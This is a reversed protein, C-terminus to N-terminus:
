RLARRPATQLLMREYADIAKERDFHTRAREVGAAGLRTREAPDRALRLMAAALAAADGAPVLIGTEEPVVAEVPGPVTTSIIPTGAAMAEVITNPFGERHTPLVLVDLARHVAPTDTRYGLWAVRPADALTERLVNAHSGEGAIALHARPEAAAVEHWAHALEVIGKERHLRGVFGFVIADAPVGLDAPEARAFRELDTGNYVVQPTARMGPLAAAIEDAIAHSVAVFRDAGRFWRRERDGLTFVGALGCRVVTPIRLVRAAPLTFRVDPPHAMFSLLVDARHRRLARAARLAALWPFDRGGLVPAVPFGAEEARERIRARPHCLLLVDHGRVRLGEALHLAMTTGGGAGARPKALAVRLRRASPPDGGGDHTEM